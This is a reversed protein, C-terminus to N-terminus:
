FGISKTPKIIDSSEANTLPTKFFKEFIHLILPTPNPSVQPIPPAPLLSLTIVPTALLANGSRHLCFFGGNFFLPDSM